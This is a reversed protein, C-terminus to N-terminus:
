FPMLLSLNLMEIEISPKMAPGFWLRSFGSPSPPSDSCSHAKAARPPLSASASYAFRHFLFTPATTMPRFM